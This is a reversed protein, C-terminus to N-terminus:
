LLPYPRIEYTDPNAKMGNRESAKGCGRCPLFSDGEGDISGHVRDPLCTHKYVWKLVWVEAARCIRIGLPLSHMQGLM